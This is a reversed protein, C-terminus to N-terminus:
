SREAEAHLDFLFCFAWLRPVTIDLYFNSVFEAKLSIGDRTGGFWIEIQKHCLVYSEVVGFHIYYHSSCEKQGYLFLEQKVRHEAWLRWARDARVCLLSWPVQFASHLCEVGM